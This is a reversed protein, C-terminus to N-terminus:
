SKLVAVICGEAVDASAPLAQYYKLGGWWDIAQKTKKPTMALADNTDVQMEATTAIKIFGSVAESANRMEKATVHGQANVTFYNGSGATVGSEHHLATILGTLQAYLTSAKVANHNNVDIETAWKVVGHNTDSAFPYTNNVVDIKLTLKANDIETKELFTTTSIVMWDGAELDLYTYNGSTLIDDASVTTLNFDVDVPGITGGANIQFNSMQVTMTNPAIFYNGRIQYFADSVFQTFNYLSWFSEFTTQSPFNDNDFAIGGGYRMGGTIWLPLLATNIVSDSNLLGEVSNIDTEVLLRDFGNSANKKHLEVRIDAM